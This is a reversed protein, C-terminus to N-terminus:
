YLPVFSLEDGSDGAMSLVVEDPHAQGLNRRYLMKLRYADAGIGMGAQPLVILGTADAKRLLRLSLTAAAAFMTDRLIRIACATRGTRDLLRLDASPAPLNAVGPDGAAAVNMTRWVHSPAPQVAGGSILRLRFGANIAAQAPFHFLDGWASAPDDLPASPPGGSNDRLQLRWGELDTDELGLLDVYEDDGHTKGLAAGIIKVPGLMLSPPVENPTYEVIIECRAWDV